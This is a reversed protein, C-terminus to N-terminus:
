LKIKSFFSELAEKQKQHVEPNLKKTEDKYDQFTTNGSLNCVDCVGKPYETIEGDFLENGCYKCKM